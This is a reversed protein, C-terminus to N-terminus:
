RIDEVTAEWPLNITKSVANDTYKQFASQIKLHQQPTVNFATIFIRKMDRSVGTINQLSGHRAIKAFIEEDHLGKKRAAGKFM